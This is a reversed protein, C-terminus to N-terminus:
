RIPATTVRSTQQSPASAYKKSRRHAPATALAHIGLWDEHFAARGRAVVDGDLSLEVLVQEGEETATLNYSTAPLRRALQATSTILFDTESDELTNWGAVRFSHETMSDREVQVLAPRERTAYFSRVAAEADPFAMGPEGMALCSNARKFLRDTPAPDTRLVWDGLPESELGPFMVLGHLECDHASLRARVSARPPIPKGTVIDAISVEVPGHDSEIRVIAEGWATCVGLVDTARGDALLHRVVIRQGVVHPGLGHRGVSHPEGAESM